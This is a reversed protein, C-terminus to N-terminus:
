QIAVGLRAALDQFHRNIRARPQRLYFASLENGLDSWDGDRHAPTASGGAYWCPRPFRSLIIEHFLPELGPEDRMLQMIQNIVPGVADDSSDERALDVYDRLLLRFERVRATVSLDIPTTTPDTM